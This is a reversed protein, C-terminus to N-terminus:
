MHLFRSIRGRATLSNPSNSVRARFVFWTESFWERHKSLCVSRESTKRHDVTWAARPRRNPGRGGHGGGTHATPRATKGLIPWFLYQAQTLHPLPDPRIWPVKGTVVESPLPLKCMTWPGPSRVATAPDQPKHAEIDASLM